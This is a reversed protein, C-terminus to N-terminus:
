KSLTYVSNGILSEGRTLIETRINPLLTDWQEDTMKGEKSSRWSRRGRIDHRRHRRRGSLGSGLRAQAEDDRPQSNPWGEQWVQGLRGERHHVPLGLKRGM